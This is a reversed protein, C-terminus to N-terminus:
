AYAPPRIGLQTMLTRLPIARLEALEALYAIRQANQLEISDIVALLEQYEEPTLAEARRRASLYELRTQLEAPMGRNIKQLLEAERHPLSPARRRARLALVQNTLRELDPTSLQEVGHLLADLSVQSEIQITAM